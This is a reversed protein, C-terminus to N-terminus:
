NLLVTANSDKTWSLKKYYEHLQKRKDYDNPIYISLGSTDTIDLSAFIEDTHLYLPIAKDWIENLTEDTQGDM